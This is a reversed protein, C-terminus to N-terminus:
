GIKEELTKLRTLNEKDREHIQRAADYSATTKTCVLTYPSGRRETVHTLDCQHRGIIQHLHRRRDKRVPFRHVSEDAKALFSTLERCDSCSCSLKAPRRYDTPKSPVQAVRSELASRCEALWRSIARHPAALKGVLWKELAFIAALHSDTLDYKDNRSLVHEILRALPQEAAVALMSKVLSSLLAPRDIRNIQWDNEAPQDDFNILSVVARDALRRCLAIREANKDRNMCLTQLLAINRSITAASAASIVATLEAEFSPWGHRRCFAPFSKDLRVGGDCPMVNALFRRVMEPDDLQQLLAPFVSRDTEDSTDVSYYGPPEPQWSEIIAAAFERCTKRQEDRRAKPTQKLQAVMADLGGIAAETGAGSLVDFHGERPWIVVAARHYWRDLTMGANGTYGEFEEDSPDWEELAQDSVIEDEDLQIEGLAVMNGRRDTWHNISLREDYIEGMEYDSADEEYDDDEEDEDYWRRRGSRYSSYDYDGGEASGSQWLTVLALHAVWGAQEAAEFLVEARARDVGKLKDM